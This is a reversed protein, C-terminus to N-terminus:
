QNFIKELCQGDKKLQDATAEFPRWAVLRQRAVVALGIGAVLYLFTIAGLVPVRMATDWVAAAILFTLAFGFLLLLAAAGWVFLLSVVAENRAEALEIGALEARHGLARLALRSYEGIKNLEFLGSM